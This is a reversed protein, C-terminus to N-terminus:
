KGNNFKKWNEWCIDIIDPNILGYNQYAEWGVWVGQIFAKKEKEEALKALTIDLDVVDDVTM